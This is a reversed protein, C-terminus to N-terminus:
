EFAAEAWLVYRYVGKSYHRSQVFIRKAYEDAYVAEHVFRPMTFTTFM